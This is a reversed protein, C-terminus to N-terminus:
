DLDDASVPDGITYFHGGAIHHISRWEREVDQYYWHGDRFVREDAYAAIVKGIFLDHTQQNHPEPILECLLWAACGSVVPIDSQDFQFLEVGCQKLKNPQDHMSITGVDQVMNLQKLTPVQLAFYGSNEVIKRTKTSKDLVVTVKAPQFELACAWAAAMVDANEQDRASVLVTPGHNLLRYSKELPVAKLHSNSM